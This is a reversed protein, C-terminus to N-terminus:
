YKAYVTGELQKVEDRTLMYIHAYGNIFDDIGMPELGDNTECMLGFPFISSYARLLNPATALRINNYEYNNYTIKLFWGIQNEKYEFVLKVQENKGFLWTTTQKADATLTDLRYM